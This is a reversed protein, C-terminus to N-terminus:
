HSGSFANSRWGDEPHDDGPNTTTSESPALWGIRLITVGGMGQVGTGETGGQLAPNVYFNTKGMVRDVQGALVKELTLVQMRDGETNLMDFSGAEATFQDAALLVSGAMSNSM